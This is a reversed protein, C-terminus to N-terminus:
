REPGSSLDQIDLSRGAHLPPAGTRRSRSAIREIGICFACFAIVMIISM